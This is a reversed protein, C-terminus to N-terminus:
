HYELWDPLRQRPRQAGQLHRGRSTNPRGRTCCPKPVTFTANILDVFVESASLYRCLGQFFESLEMNGKSCVRKVITIWQRVGLNGVALSCTDRLCMWAEIEPATTATTAELAAVVQKEVNSIDISLRYFPPAALEELATFISTLGAMISESQVKTAPLDRCQLDLEEFVVTVTSMADAITHEASLLLTAARFAETSALAVLKGEVDKLNEAVGAKERMDIFIDDFPSDNV